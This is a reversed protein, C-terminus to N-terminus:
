FTRVCIGGQIFTWKDFGAEIFVGFNKHLYERVGFTAGLYLPHYVNSLFDPGSLTSFRGPYRIISNNPYNDTHSEATISSGLSLSFFVDTDPKRMLHFYSKAAVGLCSRRFHNIERNDTMITNASAGPPTQLFQLSVAAWSYSVFFGMGFWSSLRLEFKSFLTGVGTITYSISSTNAGRYNLDRLQSEMDNQLVRKGPNPFGYGISAVWKGRTSDQAHIEPQILILLLIAISRIM